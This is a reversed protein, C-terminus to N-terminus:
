SCARSTSLGLVRRAPWSWRWRGAYPMTAMEKDLYGRRALASGRWVPTAPPRRPFADGLLCLDVGAKTPLAHGDLVQGEVEEDQLRIRESPNVLERRGDPQDTFGARVVLTAFIQNDDAAGRFLHARSGTENTLNM